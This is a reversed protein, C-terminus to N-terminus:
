QAGADPVIYTHEHRFEFSGIHGIEKSLDHDLLVPYGAKAANLCFYVDEGIFKHNRTSYGLHFWPKEMRKFVEAKTLLCGMGLFDIEALGTSDANTWMNKFEGNGISVHATPLPPVVRQSYNTGVIPKGHALLRSLADAPFRMDSDLWLIWEAGQTLAMNVLDVRQDCILTGNSHLINVHGAGSAAFYGVLNALDFAFGAHVTDRTPICVAIKM